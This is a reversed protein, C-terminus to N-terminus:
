KGAHKLRLLHEMFSSTIEFVYEVETECVGDGHKVYTNQCKTCYDILKEFMNVLQASGGEEHIFQGIQSIQHEPCRRDAEM